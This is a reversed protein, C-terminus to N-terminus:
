CISDLESAWLVRQAPAITQETMVLGQAHNGNPDARGVVCFFYICVPRKAAEFLLIVCSPGSSTQLGRKDSYPRMQDFAYWAQMSM